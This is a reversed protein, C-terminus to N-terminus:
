GELFFENTWVGGEESGVKGEGLLGGEELWGVWARWREARMWGLEGRDEGGCFGNILKQSELLFEVSRPPDCKSVMLEAAEFPHSVAYEYGQKTAQVFTRLAENSPTPSAANRAIIPSYGYPVGHATPPWTHLTTTQPTPPTPYAELGEWPTFIWTADISPSPHQTLADFLNLKTSSSNIRLTSPNGGDHSIMSKVIADEYSSPTPSHTNTPTSM